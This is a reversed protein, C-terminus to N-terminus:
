NLLNPRLFVISCPTKSLGGGYNLPHVEVGKILPTHTTLPAQNLLPNPPSGVMRLESFDPHGYFEQGCFKTKGGGGSFPGFHPFVTCILIFDEFNVSKGPPPTSRSKISLVIKHVGPRKQNIFPTFKLGRLQPPIPQWPQKTPHKAKQM